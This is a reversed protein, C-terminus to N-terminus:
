RLNLKEKGAWGEKKKIQMACAHAKGVCWALAQLM